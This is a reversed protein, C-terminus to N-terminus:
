AGSRALTMTVAVWRHVSAVVAREALLGHDIGRAGDFNCASARLLVPPSKGLGHRDDVSSSPEFAVATELDLRIRAAHSGFRLEHDIGFCSFDEGFAIDGASICRASWAMARLPWRTVRAVPDIAISLPLRLM